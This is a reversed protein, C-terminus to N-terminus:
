RIIAISGDNVTRFSLEAVDGVKVSDFVSKTVYAFVKTETGSLIYDIRFLLVGDQSQVSKDLVMAQSKQIDSFTLSSLDVTGQSTGQNPSTGEVNGQQPAAPKASQSSNGQSSDPKDTNNDSPQASQPAPKPPNDTPVQQVAVRDSAPAPSAEDSHFFNKSVILATVVALTVLVGILSMILVKKAKAKETDPTVTAGQETVVVPVGSSEYTGWYDDNVDHFDEPTSDTSNDFPNDSM